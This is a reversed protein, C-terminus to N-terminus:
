LKGPHIGSLVQSRVAALGMTFINAMIGSDRVYPLLAATRDMSAERETLLPEAVIRAEQLSFSGFPNWIKNDCDDQWDDIADILFIWCGLDFGLLGLAERVPGPEIVLGAAQDVLQQLMVGFIKAAAPDPEKQQAEQLVRMQTRIIQEYQPFRRGAKKWAQRFALRSLRGAVPHEDQIQDGAKHWALLVTLAACNELVAGGQVWNKRVLPNLVCGTTKEPPQDKTLALLLLSLMTLDYNVALRPLQGYDQGIQHCLGCYVSRYRMYERMLLEAKLPRVYGFM